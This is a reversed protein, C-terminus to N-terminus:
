VRFLGEVSSLLRSREVEAGGMAKQTVVELADQDATLDTKYLRNLLKQLERRLAEDGATDLRLMLSIREVSSGCKTINRATETDVSDDFSGRFAMIDDQVWQLELRPSDSKEALDMASSAMQLYALTPTSITERLVMGNGLMNDVSSIVSGPDTRDFLYRHCFDESGTYPCPIGLSRCIAPYDM